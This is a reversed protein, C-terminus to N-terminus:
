FCSGWRINVEFTGCLEGTDRNDCTVRVPIWEQLAEVVRCDDGRAIGSCGRRGCNYEEPGFCAGCYSYFRASGNITHTRKNANAPVSANVDLKSPLWPPPPSCILQWTSPITKNRQFLDGGKWMTDDNYIVREAFIFATKISARWKSLSLLEQIGSYDKETVEFAINENPILTLPENNRKASNRVDGSLGWSLRFLLPTEGEDEPLFVLGIEIFVIKHSSINEVEFSLSKLWSDTAQFSTNFSIDRGGMVVRNIAVPEHHFSKKVLMRNELASTNSNVPMLFCLSLIIMQAVLYRYM